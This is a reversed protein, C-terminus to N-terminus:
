VLGLQAAQVVTAGQGPAVQVGSIAQAIAWKTLAAVQRTDTGPDGMVAVLARWLPDAVGLALIDQLNNCRELEAGGPLPSMLLRERELM